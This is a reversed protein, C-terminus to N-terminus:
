KCTFQLLVFQGDCDLAVTQSSSILAKWDAQSAASVAPPQLDFIKDPATLAKLMNGCLVNALEGVADKLLLPTVESPDSGLVNSAIEAALEMPMAVQLEGTAAGGFAVNALLVNAPEVAEAVEAADAFVFAYKELVSMSVSSISELIELSM